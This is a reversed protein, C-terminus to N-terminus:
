KFLKTGIRVMTAGYPLAIEYDNSMGMSLEGKYGDYAKLKENIKQMESFVKKPESSIDPITMIGNPTIKKQICYEYFSNIQNQDIGSKKPDKDINIQILIKSSTKKSNLIDIEKLRAITHIYDFKENIEALKRSQVPAIFHYNVDKYMSYHLKYDELRNEGFVRFGFDYLFKIEENSRNKVVPLLNAGYSTVKTNIADLENIEM